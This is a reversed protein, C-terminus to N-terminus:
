ELNIANRLVDDDLFSGHKVRLTGGVADRKLMKFRTFVALVKEAEPRSFGKTMVVEIFGEEANVIRQAVSRTGSIRENM